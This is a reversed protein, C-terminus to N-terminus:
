DRIEAQMQTQKAVAEAAAREAAVQEQRSGAADARAPRSAAARAPERTSRPDPAFAVPPTAEPKAAPKSEPPAAPKIQGRLERELRLAAGPAAAEPDPREREMHVTLAVAFVLVAAAALGYYWRHPGPEHGSCRGSGARRAHARAKALPGGPSQARDHLALHHLGGAAYLPRAGRHGPALSGPVARRRDGPEERQAARVPLPSRSAA